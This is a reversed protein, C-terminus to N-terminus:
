SRLDTYPFPKGHGPYVTHFRYSELKKISETMRKHDMANFAIGPKGMNVFTDGAILEGSKTLIAISGPTHGPLSLIQGDFGYDSLRFNDEILVDPTFKEFDNLVKISVKYIVRGMIKFIARYMLPKYRFSSLFDEIDPNKVLKLDDPHIAIKTRYQDRVYAANCVHDNDGHTLVVLNLNGPNCGAKALEKQLIERRNSFEKDMVIHGGTDFLLFGNETKGLYCNVAGLDLRIIEQKM